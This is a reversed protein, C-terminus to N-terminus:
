KLLIPNMDTQPEIGCAEAQAAQARGIEGGDACVASNNSMNQAKFPVVRYGKRFLYRCLAATVWSKGVHSGTGGVFIPKASTAHSRQLAPPFISQSPNGIFGM